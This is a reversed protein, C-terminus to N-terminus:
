LIMSCFWLLKNESTGSNQNVLQNITTKEKLKKKTTTKFLIILCTYINIFYKFMFMIYMMMIIM